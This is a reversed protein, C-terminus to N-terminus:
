ELKKFSKMKGIVRKMRENDEETRITATRERELIYNTVFRCVCGAYGRGRYEKATRVDAVEWMTESYKEM